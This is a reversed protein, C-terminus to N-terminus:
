KKRFVTRLSSVCSHIGKFKLCTHGLALIVPETLLDSKSSCDSTKKFHCFIFITKNKRQKCRCYLTKYRRDVSTIEESCSVTKCNGESFLILLFYYHALKLSPKLFDRIDGSIRLLSGEGHLCTWVLRRTSLLYYLALM